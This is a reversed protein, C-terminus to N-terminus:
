RTTLPYRIAITKPLLNNLTTAATVETPLISFLAARGKTATVNFTLKRVLVAGSFGTGSAMSVTISGNAANGSNVLAGANTTTEADSLFTLQAPDWTLQTTLAGLKEGSARMDAVLTLVVTAGSTLDLTTVDLGLSPGTTSGVAVVVSDMVAPNATVNAVIVSQGLAVGTVVGAANVTAAATTRSTYTLAVGSMPAGNENFVQFAPTTTGAPNIVSIENGTAAISTPTGGATTSLTPSTGTIAGETATVTFSGPTGPTTYIVSGVGNGNTTSTASAFNGGGVSSSWTMVHGMALVANGNADALQATITMQGGVSVSSVSSTVAYAAPAGAVTAIAASSGTLSSNDTAFITYSTASTLGTTFSVTAAGSADTTSTPSAFSGGTGTKSWTVTRGAAAVPNGSADSLQATVTDPAGAVPSAPSATVVYKAAPGLTTTVASSTGVVSNEDHVSVIFSEGVTTSTTVVLIAAGNASTTSTATAPTATGGVTWTVVLGPTAENSGNALLQATFTVQSGAVPNSSSATVAYTRTPEDAGGCGSGALAALLGLRALLRARHSLTVRCHAM